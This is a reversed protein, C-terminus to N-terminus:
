SCAKTASGRPQRQQKGLNIALSNLERAVASPRLTEPRERYLKIIRKADEVLEILVENSPRHDINQLDRQLWDLLKEDPM